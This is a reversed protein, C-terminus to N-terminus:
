EGGGVTLPVIKVYKIDEIFDSNHPKGQAVLLKAFAISIKIARKADEKTAFYAVNDSRCCIAGECDSDFNYPVCLGDSDDHVVIFGKNM